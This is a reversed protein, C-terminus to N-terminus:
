LRIREWIFNPILRWFFVLIRYRWDIVVVRQKREIARVIKRAVKDVSMLMPYHYKSTDLLPTDIFGPRIDTFYIKLKVKQADPLNLRVNRSLQALAQIYTNNFHKTASYSPAPGLGKVGAISSIVAIHGYSMCDGIKPRNGGSMPKDDAIRPKNNVVSRRDDAVSRGDDAVSGRDSAIGLEDGAVSREDGAVSREDDAVSGRDSAIGLEDGAVSREDDAVNLKDKVAKAENGAFGLGGDSNGANESVYLQEQVTKFYHWATDIMRTFGLVNTSCTQLEVLPELEKNHSGVGSTHFYLDMGGIRSILQHLLQPAEEKEIDIIQYEVMQSTTVVMNECAVEGVTDDAASSGSVIEARQLCLLRLEKLKDERRGAIGLSWGKSALITAVEWGIGSTAGMIVARKM